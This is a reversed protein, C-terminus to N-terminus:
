QRTFCKFMEKLENISDNTIKLEERVEEKVINKIDDHLRPHELGENPFRFSKAILGISESMSGIHDAVLDSGDNEKVGTAGARRKNKRAGLTEKGKRKQGLSSARSAQESNPTGNGLSDNEIPNGFSDQDPNSDSESTDGVSHANCKALIDRAIRKARRVNDPCSPNGTPKKVNALKDFKGKLSDMDRYPRDNNEGWENYNKEVMAWQNSGLPEVEEVVDLLTDIDENSYNPAGTRGGKKRKERLRASSPINPYIKLQPCPSTSRHHRSRM